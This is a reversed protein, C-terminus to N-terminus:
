APMSWSSQRWSARTPAPARDLALSLSPPLSLFLSFSLSLALSLSLTLALSLLRLLMLPFHTCSHFHALSCFISQAAASKNVAAPPRTELRRSHLCACSSARACELERHARSGISAAENALAQLMSRCAKFNCNQAAVAVGPKLAATAIPIHLAVPAVVVDCGDADLENLSAVLKRM